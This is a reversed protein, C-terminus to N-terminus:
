VSHTNNNGSWTNPDGDFLEPLLDARTIIDHFCFCVQCQQLDQCINGQFCVLILPNWLTFEFLKICVHLACLVIYFFLIQSPRPSSICTHKVKPFLLLAWVHVCQTGNKKEGKPHALIKKLVKPNHVFNRGVTKLRWILKLIVLFSCKLLYAEVLISCFTICTGLASSERWASVLQM